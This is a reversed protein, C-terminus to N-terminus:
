ATEGRILEVPMVTEPPLENGEILANVLSVAKSAVGAWDVRITTLSPLFDAHPHRGDFGGVVALDEPVRIGRARCESLLRYARADSYCVAATPRKGTPAELYATLAAGIGPDNTGLDDDGWQDLVVMDLESAAELFGAYRRVISRRDDTDNASDHRYHVIKHGKAALYRAVLRSGGKDDVVVTPLGPLADAIAVVPLPSSALKEVLPDSPSTLLVLGDIQGGALEAYVENVPRGLSLRYITLNKGHDTCAMSLGDIVESFFPDRSSVLGVSSYFGITNTCQGRLSRAVMNPQFRLEAAAARIRDRTSDSVRVRSQGSGLVASVAQQSVGTRRAIDKM